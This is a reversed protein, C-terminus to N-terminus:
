EKKSRKPTSKRGASSGRKGVRKTPTGTYDIDAVKKPQVERSSRRPSSLTYEPEETESEGEEEHMEEDAQPVVDKVPNTGSM